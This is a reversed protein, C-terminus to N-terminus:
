LAQYIEMTNKGNGCHVGQGDVQLYVNDFQLRVYSDNAYVRADGYSLEAEYRGASAKSILDIGDLEGRANYTEKYMRVSAGYNNSEVNSLYAEANSVRDRTEFAVGKTTSDLLDNTDEILVLRSKISKGNEEFDPGIQMGVGHTLDSGLICNRKIDASGMEVHGKDDVSFNDSTIKIKDATLDITKGALSIATESILKIEKYIGNIAPVNDADLNYMADKYDRNQKIQDDELKQVKKELASIRQLLAEIQNFM